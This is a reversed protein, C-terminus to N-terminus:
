SLPNEYFLTYRHYMRRQVVGGPLVRSTSSRIEALTQRWPAFPPAAHAHEPSKRSRVVGVAMDFPTVAAFHAFDFPTAHRYLGLIALVGGPALLKGLRSLAETLPMHHLAAISSIFEFQGPEFPADFLDAEIFEVGVDVDRRAVGLIQTDRDLAIVHDCREAVKAAFEGAGCGVDLATTCNRPISELLLSHYHRNHDWQTWAPKRLM